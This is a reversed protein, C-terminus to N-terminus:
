CCRASCFLERVAVCAALAIGGKQRLASHNLNLEKRTINCIIASTPSIRLEGCKELYEKQGTAPKKM